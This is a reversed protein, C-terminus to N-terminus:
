GARVQWNGFTADEMTTCPPKAPAHWPWQDAPRTDLGLFTKSASTATSPPAQAISNVASPPPATHPLPPPSPCPREPSASTGGTDIKSTEEVAKVSPPELQPTSTPAPRSKAGSVEGAQGHAEAQLRQVEGSDILYEVEGGVLIGIIFLVVAGAWFGVVGVRGWHVNTVAM